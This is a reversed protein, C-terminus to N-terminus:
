FSEREEGEHSPRELLFDESVTNEALFFSDWPWSVPSLIREKGRVRVEVETTGVPFQANEPLCILQVRGRTIIRTKM